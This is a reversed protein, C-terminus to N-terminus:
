IEKENRRELLGYPHPPLGGARCRERFTAMGGAKQYTMYTLSILYGILFVYNVLEVLKERGYTRIQSIIDSITVSTWM